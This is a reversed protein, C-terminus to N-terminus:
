RLVQPCPEGPPTLSRTNSLSLTSAHAADARVFLSGDDDIYMEQWRSDSRVMALVVSDSPVLLLDTEYRLPIDLDARTVEGSYFRLNDVVMDDPFLSINRGDMSVRIAPYTEWTVYSGWWLPNYVNGRVGNERLFSVVRCPHKSGLVTGGTAVVPWPYAGIFQMTLVIPVLSCGSIALWVRKFLLTEPRRISSALLTIVPAAWIAAIPVHRMSLYAMGILPGCSLVWQWPRLGAVRGHQRHAIWGVVILITTIFTLATASWADTEWSVPRWEVIYRRNTGHSLETLVYVWLRVGRPNVFTALVCAVLTLLLPKTGRLWARLDPEGRDLNRCIQILLVLVIAGLGALFGGHFNAWLLMVPPLLWLPGKGKIMFRFLVAVFLAFFAFSFLQPRFIFFRSVTSTCVFFVPVLVIPDETTTRVAVWLFYVAGAGVFCKLAILGLPGFQHYAEWILIQALYEFTVWHFGASTYAFPDTDIPGGHQVFLRGYALYGFLDPDVQRMVYICAFAILGVTVGLAPPLSTNTPRGRAGSRIAASNGILQRQEPPVAANM